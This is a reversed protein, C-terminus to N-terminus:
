GAEGTGDSKVLGAVVHLEGALLGLKDVEVKHAVAGEAVGGGAVEHEEDADKYVCIISISMQSTANEVRPLMESDYRVGTSVLIDLDRFSLSVMEPTVRRAKAFPAGSMRAEREAPPSSSPIYMATPLRNPPQRKAEVMTTLLHTNSQGLGTVM